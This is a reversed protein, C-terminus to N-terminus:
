HGKALSELYYIVIDRINYFTPRLMVTEM